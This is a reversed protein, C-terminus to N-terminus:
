HQVLPLVAMLQTVLVAELLEEATRSTDLGLTANVKDSRPPSKLAWYLSIQTHAIIQPAGEHMGLPIAESGHTYLEHLFRLVTPLERTHFDGM